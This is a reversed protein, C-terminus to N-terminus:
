NYMIIVKNEMIIINMYYFMIFKYYNYIISKHKDNINNYMKIYIYKDLFFFILSM